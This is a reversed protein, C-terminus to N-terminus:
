ANRRNSLYSGFHFERVFGSGIVYAKGTLYSLVAAIVGAEPNDGLLAFMVPIWVLACVFFVTGPVGFIDMNHLYHM